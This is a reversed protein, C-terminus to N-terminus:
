LIFDFLDTRRISRMPSKQTPNGTIEKNTISTM